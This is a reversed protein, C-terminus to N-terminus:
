AVEAICVVLDRSEVPFTNELGGSTIVFYAYFRGANAVAAATPAYECTGAIGVDVTVGTSTQAVIDTGSQDVLRFEVTKGTLDVVTDVGSANPQKITVAIATLRDGVQIPITQEAM